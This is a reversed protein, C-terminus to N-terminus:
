SQRRKETRRLSKNLRYRLYRIVAAVSCSLALTVMSVIAGVIIYLDLDRAYRQTMLHPFDHDSSNRYCEWCYLGYQLVSVSIVLLAVLAFHMRAREALVAVIVGLAITASTPIGPEDFALWFSRAGLVFAICFIIQLLHALRFQKAFM